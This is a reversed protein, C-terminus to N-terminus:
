AGSQKPRKKNERFILGLLKELPLAFDISSTKEGICYYLECYKLKHIVLASRAESDNYIERAFRLNTTWTGDKALFSNAITNRIFKRM